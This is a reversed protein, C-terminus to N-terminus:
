VHNISAPQMGLKEYSEATPFIKGPNCLGTPNFIEKVNAMVQLDAPSFILPM